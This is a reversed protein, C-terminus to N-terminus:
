KLAGGAEIVRLTSLHGESEFVMRWLPDEVIVCMRVTEAPLPSPLHADRKEIEWTFKGAADTTGHLGIGRYYVSVAADSIPARTLADIVMGHFAWLPEAEDPDFDEDTPDDDETSSRETAM